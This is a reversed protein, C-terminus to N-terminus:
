CEVDSFPEAVIQFEDEYVVYGVRQTKLVKVKIGRDEIFTAMERVKAIHDVASDKFWSIARQAKRYYPPKSATFRTPKELYENFWDRIGQLEEYEDQYLDGSDILRAAIQFIGLYRQSDPDIELVVFRLYMRENDVFITESLNNSSCGNGDGYGM